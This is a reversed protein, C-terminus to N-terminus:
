RTVIWSTSDVVHVKTVTQPWIHVLFPWVHGKSDRNWLRLQKGAADAPIRWRCIVRTRQHPGAFFSQERARLLKGGVKADCQVWSITGGTGPLKRVTLGKFTKGALPQQDSNIEVYVRAQPHPATCAICADTGMTTTTVTATTGPAPQASATALSLVLTAAVAAAVAVAIGVAYRLELRTVRRM